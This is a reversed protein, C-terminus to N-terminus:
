SMNESHIFFHQALTVWQNSGECVALSQERISLSFVPLSCSYAHVVSIQLFDNLGKVTSKFYFIWDCLLCSLARFYESFLLYRKSTCRSSNATRGEWWLSGVCISQYCYSWLLLLMWWELEVPFWLIINLLFQAWTRCEFHRAWCQLLKLGPVGLEYRQLLVVWIWTRLFLERSSKSIIQIKHIQMTLGAPLPWSPPLALLFYRHIFFVM